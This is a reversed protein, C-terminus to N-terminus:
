RYSTKLIMDDHGTSCDNKIGLLIKRVEDYNIYKIKFTDVNVDDSISQFFETFDDPENIKRTLCSALSTFHNNIDSPQLKIRDHQKNLIRHM